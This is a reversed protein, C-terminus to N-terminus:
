DLLPSWAPGYDTYDNETLRVVGSGDANIVFIEDDGDRNSYFAIRGSAADGPLPFM